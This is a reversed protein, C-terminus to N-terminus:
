QQMNEKCPTHASEGTASPSSSSPSSPHTDRQTPSPAETRQGVSHEMRSVQQQDQPTRTEVVPNRKETQTDEKSESLAVVAELPTGKKFNVEQVKKNELSDLILQSKEEKRRQDQQCEREDRSDQNLKTKEENRKREDRSTKRGEGQSRLLCHRLHANNPINSGDACFYYLRCAQQICM